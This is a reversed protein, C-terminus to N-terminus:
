RISKGAPNKRSYFLTKLEKKFNILNNAAMM